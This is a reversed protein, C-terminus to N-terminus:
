VLVALISHQELTFIPHPERPPPLIAETDLPKLTHMSLLRTEIGEEALRQATRVATQLIGGTCILTADRGERMHIAKGLEFHIESQHVVPEGAKGLRLYCPGHYETMGRTAGQAEVPDGPAVVTMGPLARMVALDELVSQTAGMAGYAFGGGVTVIKVDANHYCVDNRVHALCRMTPFNGISDTFAIKGSLAMRAAMGTMNQEAVGANLFQSPLQEMFPNVVGFGLDGVILVIRQDKKALEFLEKLFPNRMQKAGIGRPSQDPGRWATRPLAVLAQKGYLDRGQGERHPRHHLQAARNRLAGTDAGNTPSPICTLSTRLWASAKSATTIWLSLSTTSITNHPSSLRNGFPAKTANATASCVSYAALAAAVSARLPWERPSPFVMAWLAPPLSSVPITRTCSTAPSLLAMRTFLKLPKSLSFVAKRSCPM